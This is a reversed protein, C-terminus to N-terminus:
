RAGGHGGRAEVLLRLNRSLHSLDAVLGVRSLREELSKQLEESPSGALLIETEDESIEALPEIEGAYQENAPCKAQCKLCGVLANHWGAEVWGPMPDPMENYLTICKGVDIVFREKTICGTPCEKICIDCGRCLRMKKVGQWTRASCELDTAFALLRHYSGMGKVYSINNRGYQALGTRAALLKLPLNAGELRAETNRLVRSRIQAKLDESRPGTAAYGPPILVNLTEGRRHFDVQTTHDPVAVLVISRAEPLSDPARFEFGGIYGRFTENDSVMGSGKIREFDAQLRKIYEVPLIRYAFEGGVLRLGSEETGSFALVRDAGTFLVAGACAM